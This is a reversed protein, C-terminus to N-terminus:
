EERACRGREIRGDVHKKPELIIERSNITEFTFEYLFVCYQNSNALFVLELMSTICDFTHKKVLPM